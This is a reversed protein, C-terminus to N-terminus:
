EEIAQFTYIETLRSLYEMVIITVGIRDNYTSMDTYTGRADNIAYNALTDREENSPERSVVTLFLHDILTNVTTTNPIERDILSLQWGFDWDNGVDSKRDIMIRKHMFDYYYAFSLTDIPINTDRGLKYSLPSQHMNDMNERMYIFFNRGDFFDIRKGIGFSAEEISKIKETNYLFEKSFIIQLLIDEFRTPNSNVITNIIEDKKVATVESFYMNVLRTVVGTTFGSSKVLERYFDFGTTVTTGFLEQPQDNQNLGIILENDRRDLSWNQLAIGASPVHSDNFDLLFIELMERGNDEPSRFRKWNDDSTMHLYTIMPMSYDDDMLLALRNYVNAIDADQVTALENAPSFMITQTLVYAAWRKLYHEGLDLNFLRALIKERHENYYNYDKQEEIFRETSTLDSNPTQLKTQITSIFTGSAMLTDLETKSMGYFLLALLKNAVIRQNESSLANFENDTIADLGYEDYSLPTAFVKLGQFHADNNSNNENVSSTNFVINGFSIPSTTYKLLNSQAVEVEESNYVRVIFGTNLSYLSNLKLQAGVDVGNISGVLAITSPSTESSPVTNAFVKLTYPVSDIDITAVVAENKNNIAIEDVNFLFELNSAEAVKIWYGQTINFDNFDNASTFGQDVYAKQYTQGGGQVVLLNNLGIQEILESITLSQPVAILNWGSTLSIRHLNQHQGIPTYTLIASNNVKIWYGKNEELATFDNLDLNADVYAKKYVKEPGQVVLLNDSGLQTKLEDLTLNANIGILNWGQQLQLENAFLSNLLVTLLFLIKKM